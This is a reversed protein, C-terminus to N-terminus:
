LMKICDVPNSNFYKALGDRFDSKLVGFKIRIPRLELTRQQINTATPVHSTELERSANL